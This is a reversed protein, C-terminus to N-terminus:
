DTVILIGLCMEDTTGEGWVVYRPPTGQLAPLKDRLTPDHTCRVTVTDGRKLRVPQPLQRAGQNDFDWVPIDLITRERSTGENATITISKGLLHMHGAAARVTVPERVNRVCTQTAGAKPAFPDGGCLLQLGGVTRLAGPGFRTTVDAVADGRNCLPGTVGVPCPLEVPGPLLMTRMPTLDRRSSVRLRVHTDD